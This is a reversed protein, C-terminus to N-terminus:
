PSIGTPARQPRISVFSTGAGVRTIRVSAYTRGSLFRSLFSVPLISAGYRDRPRPPARTLFAKCHAMLGVMGGGGTGELSLVFVLPDRV